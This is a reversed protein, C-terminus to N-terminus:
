KNFPSTGYLQKLLIIDISVEDYEPDALLQPTRKVDVDYYM